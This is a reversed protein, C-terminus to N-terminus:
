RLWKLRNYLGNFKFYVYSLLLYFVGGNNKIVAFLEKAAKKSNSVGVLSHFAVVDSVILYDIGNKYMKLNLDYDSFIKYQTDFHVNILLRNYFLGQHPISNRIKLKWDFTPKVIVDDEVRVAAFIGSYKDNSSSYLQKPLKLLVDGCNIFICWKGCANKMGKNMADYIGHDPESILKAIKDKYTYLISLTNDTSGGDIVIYEVNESVFPVISKVTNEIDAESNYCVTIISVTKM